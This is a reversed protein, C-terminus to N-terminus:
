AVSDARQRRELGVEGPTGTVARLGLNTALADAVAGSVVRPRPGHHGLEAEVSTARCTEIGCSNIWRFPELDGSVNLSLGHSTVGRTIRLGISGIKRISGRALGPAASAADANEFEFRDVRDDDVWLGTLGEIRGAALGWKALADAMSQELATVFGAVDVRDAGAPQAGVERLDIIPYGIIQGPGHYTVKGGRPTDCIEIGREGYWDADHLLDSPESRRGLTYTPPHELLLLLNGGRGELRDAVLREQTALMEAYDRRGLEIVKLKAM